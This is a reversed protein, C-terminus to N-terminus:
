SVPMIHSISILLPLSRSSSYEPTSASSVEPLATHGYFEWASGDNVGSPPAQYGAGGGDKHFVQDSPDADASLDGYDANADPHAFRIDSESVGNQMIYGVARQLEAAYRQVESQRLALTEKDIQANESNGSSLIAASLAGILVVAILIIFLVNGSQGANKEASM